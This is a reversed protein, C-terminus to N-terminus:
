ERVAMKAGPPQARILFRGFTHPKQVKRVSIRNRLGEDELFPLDDRKAFVIGARENM